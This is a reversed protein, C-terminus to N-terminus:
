LILSNPQIQKSSNRGYKGGGPNIESTEDFSLVERERTQPSRQVSSVKGYMHSIIAKCVMLCVIAGGTPQFHWNEVLLMRLSTTRLLSSIKKMASPNGHVILQIVCNRRFSDRFQVELRQLEQPRVGISHRNLWRVCSTDGKEILDTTRQFSADGDKFGKM